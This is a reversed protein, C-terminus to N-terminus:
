ISECLESYISAIRDGKSDWSLASFVHQQARAGMSQRLETNSLLERLADAIGAAFGDPNDPAIKIGSDDDVVAAPGGYDTSVIPLGMAMAELLVNGTTEALTPFCFIDASRYHDFTEARSCRGLFKVNDGVGIDGAIRQCRDEYSAEGSGVIKVRTSHLLQSPLFGLARILFELGKYPTIRGVYLITLEDKSQRHSTEGVYDSTEIGTEALIEVKSHYEVPLIDYMYPATLLIVDAARYTARLWPDFRFRLADLQRLRSFLPERGEVLSRFSAPVRLGGGIPGLVFRRARRGPSSPYRPAQPVVHHFVDAHAVIERCQKGSRRDFLFYQPKVASRFSHPLVNLPAWENSVVHSTVNPLFRDQRSATILDVPYRRSIQRLWNFAVLSESVGDGSCGM